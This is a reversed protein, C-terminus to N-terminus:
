GCIHPLQTQSRAIGWLPEWLCQQGRFRSRRRWLDHDQAPQCSVRSEQHSAGCTFDIEEGRRRKAGRRIWPHSQTGRAIGAPWPALHRLWRIPWVHWGTFCNPKHFGSVHGCLLRHPQNSCSCETISVWGAPVSFFNFIPGGLSYCSWPDWPNLKRLKRTMREWGRETIRVDLM